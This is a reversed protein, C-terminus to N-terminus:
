AKGLKNYLAVCHLDFFQISEDESFHNEVIYDNLEERSPFNGDRGVNPLEHRQPLDIVEFSHCHWHLLKRVEDLYDPM